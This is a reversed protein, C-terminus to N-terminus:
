PGGNLSLGSFSVNSVLRFVPQMLTDLVGEDLQVAEERGKEESVPPYALCQSTRNRFLGGRVVAKGGM